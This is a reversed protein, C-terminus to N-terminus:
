AVNVGNVQNLMMSRFDVITNSLTENSKENADIDAKLTELCTEIFLQAFEPNEILKEKFQKQSFKIDSRDKLYLYAGAGGVLKREKLMVLLSLEPDFGNDYDFVLTTTLGSRANRSKCIQMDVLIGNIGFAEEGKLKTNDDCRIMFNSLYTITKGGPLAEGQKLYALQGKKRQMPNIDIQDTIHNIMILIINAAKLMPMLRKFLSSNTKASATASMSGSLEEEETFKGPMLLAVSDLIVVTPVLKFVRNGEPDFLGTDYSYDEYHEVKDDHLIKMRQYFNEATIGANRRAYRREFDDGYFGTLSQMRIDNIGGEIDEHIVVGNDFPRVINSAVQVAFTTKGCGSRGIISMMCGDPIGISYYELNREASKVRVKNGNMFDFNLFGTPYQIEFEAERKINYDKMKSLTERFRELIISM